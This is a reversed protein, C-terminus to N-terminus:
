QVVHNEAFERIGEVDAIMGFGPRQHLHDGGITFVAAVGENATLAAFLCANEGGGFGVIVIEIPLIGIQGMLGGTKVVTIDGGGAGDAARDIGKPLVGRAIVIPLAAVAFAAGFAGTAIGHKGGRSVAIRGLGSENLLSGAFAAVLFVFALVGATVGNVSLVKGGGVVAKGFIGPDKDAKPFRSHIAVENVYLLREALIAAGPHFSGRTLHDLMGFGGHDFGGGAHFLAFLGDATGNAFLNKLFAGHGDGFILAGLGVGKVVAYRHSANGGEGTLVM